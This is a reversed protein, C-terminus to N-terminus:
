LFCRKGTPLLFVPVSTRWVDLIQATSVKKSEVDGICKSAM